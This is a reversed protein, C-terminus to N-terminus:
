PRRAVVLFEGDGAGEPQRQWGGYVHEVAFGATALSSRLVDASRFRLSATSVLKEGTDFRYHIAHTVVDVVM